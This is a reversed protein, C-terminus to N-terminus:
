DLKVHNDKERCPCDPDHVMAVGRNTEIVIYAHGGTKVRWAKDENCGTLTMALLALITLTLKKM